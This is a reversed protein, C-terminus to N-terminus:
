LTHQKNLLELSSSDKHGLLRGRYLYYYLGCLAVIFLAVYITFLTSSFFRGIDFFSNNTGHLVWSIIISGSVFTLLAAILWFFFVVILSLDFGRYHFLHNVVALLAFGLASAYLFGYFSQVDMNKKIAYFRFLLTFLAIFFAFQLAESTAILFTSFVTSDAATFQQKLVTVGTFTTQKTFAHISAFIVCSLILVLLFLQTNTFRKFIKSSPTEGLNFFFTTSGYKGEKKALGWSIVMMVLLGVLYASGSITYFYFQALVAPDDFGTKGLGLVQPVGVMVAIIIVAFILVKVIQPFKPINM